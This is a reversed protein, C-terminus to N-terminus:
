VTNMCFKILNIGDVYFYILVLLLKVKDYLKGDLSSSLKRCKLLSYWVFVM